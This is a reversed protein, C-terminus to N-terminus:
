DVVPGAARVVESVDDSYKLFNEEFQQALKQAQRDYAEKDEWTSRPDLMESPVGNCEVPM